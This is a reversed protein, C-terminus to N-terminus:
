GTGKCSKWGGRGTLSGTNADGSLSTLLNVHLAGLKSALLLHLQVLHCFMGSAHVAFCVDKPCDDLWKAAVCYCILVCIYLSACVFPAEAARARTRVERRLRVREDRM